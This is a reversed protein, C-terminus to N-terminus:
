YCSTQGPGWSRSYLPALSGPLSSGRPTECGGDGRWLGVGVERARPEGRLGMEVTMEGQAGPFLQVTVGTGGAVVMVVGGLGWILLCSLLHSDALPSWVLNSGQGPGGEGM